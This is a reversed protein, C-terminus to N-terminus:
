RTPGQHSAFKGQIWDRRFLHLLSHVRDSLPPLEPCEQYIQRNLEALIEVAEVQENMAYPSDHNYAAEETLYEIAHALISLARGVEPSISRRHTTQTERASIRLGSGSVHQVASSFGLM